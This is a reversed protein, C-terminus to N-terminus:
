LTDLAEGCRWPQRQVDVIDPQLQMMEDELDSVKEQYGCQSKLSHFYKSSMSMTTREPRGSWLQCGNAGDGEM